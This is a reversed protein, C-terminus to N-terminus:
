KHSLHDLTQNVLRDAEQICTETRPVHNFTCIAFKRALRRTEQWLKKLEPNKVEYEGNLQRAVLQSDIECVIQNGKLEAASELASILALYEAQNNTKTGIFKASERMIKGSSDLILYAIAAPGPNGRSGGDTYIILKMDM